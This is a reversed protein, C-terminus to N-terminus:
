GKVWVKFESYTASRTYMHRLGIRGEAVPEADQLDWNYLQQQGAGAVEFFLRSGTKIVTIRYTIGPKFLGTNYYSPPIEMDAFSVQETVPYRRARVYDQSPDSNSNGFAAYSIHLANMYRFYQSMKPVSRLENWQSIDRHYPDTGIGTAQIYLINVHVTENDTRTYNYQIKIDGSFSNKTWLVAHHADEGREPGAQLNMGKQNHEVTAELGDLFWNAQWDETCPDSFALEWDASSNLTEFGPQARLGFSTFAIALCIIFRLMGPLNHM